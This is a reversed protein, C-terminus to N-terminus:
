KNSDFTNSITVDDHVDDLRVKYLKRAETELEDRQKIMVSRKRILEMMEASTINGTNIRKEIRDIRATLRPIQELLWSIRECRLDNVTKAM